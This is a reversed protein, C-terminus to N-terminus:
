SMPFLEALLGASADQLIRDCGAAIPAPNGYHRHNVSVEYGGFPYEETTPLYGVAANTYGCCLTMAAPSRSRIRSGIENFAEGPLGVIAFDGLRIATVPGCVEAAARGARLRQEMQGAWTVHIDVPNWSEPGAGARKLDAVRAALEARLRTMEDASPLPVLPLRVTTGAYAVTPSFEGAPERRYRAIPVASGYESRVVTMPQVDADSWAVIAAAAVRRGFAVEAGPEEMFSQLPLLNGACGQLFLCHAGTWSRVAARLPGVFDSSAEPVDPGIVVPHCAFGVVCAIPEGLTSDLRLVNVSSDCEGERNWGLITGADTRERRNVTLGPAESRAGGLRAPRLRGAALAAASGVASVLDQWYALEDPSLEHGLGGLKLLGPPPPAAHTHQSNVFVAEVACGAREAVAARIELADQEGTGLMDLGVLAVRAGEGEVVLVTVELPQRNARVPVYRRLFGVTDVGLPSPVPLSAIGARLHGAPGMVPKM